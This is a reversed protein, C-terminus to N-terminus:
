FSLIKGFIFGESFLIMPLLILYIIYPKSLNNSYLYTMVIVMPVGLMYLIRYGIIEAGLGGVSLISIAIIFIGTCVNLLSKCWISVSNQSRSFYCKWITYLYACVLAINKLNQTLTYKWNYEMIIDKSAYHELTEGTAGLEAGVSIDGTSISSLIYSAYSGITFGILLLMSITYKNLKIFALPTLLILLLMSRHCLCSLCIYFIGWLRQLFTNKKNPYILIIIGYFYMAMGLSARAYSFILLFFLSFIFPFANNNLHLRKVTKTLLLLAWGWIYFRFVTYSNFSILSLYYYFPEKYDEPAKYFKYGFTFYDPDWYPFLCFVMTLICFGISIRLRNRYIFSKIFIINM